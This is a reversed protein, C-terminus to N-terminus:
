IQEEVAMRRMKMRIYLRCAMVFESVKSSTRNFMQPRVVETSMVAAVEEGLRKQL